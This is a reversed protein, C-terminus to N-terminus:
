NTLSVWKEGNWFNLCNTDTNFIVLGRGLDAKTDTFGPDDTIEDRKEATLMPLRLGGKIKETSIELVSFSQAQVTEGIAVQACLSQGSFLLLTFLAARWLGKRKM